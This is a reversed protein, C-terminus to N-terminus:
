DTAVAWCRKSLPCRFQHIFNFIVVNMGLIQIPIISASNTDAQRDTQRSVRACEVQEHNVQM